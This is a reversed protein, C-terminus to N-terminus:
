CVMLPANHYDSLGPLDLQIAEQPQERPLAAYLSATEYAIMQDEPHYLVLKPGTIGGWATLADLDLRLFAASIGEVITLPIKINTKFMQQTILSVVSQAAAVMSRFSRDSVIPGSPSHSSRLLASVGGGLSRGFFLINEDKAELTQRLYNLCLLGDGVLDSCQTITGKSRSVGRYNFLFVNAGIEAGVQLCEAM